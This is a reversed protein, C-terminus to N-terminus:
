LKLIPAAVLAAKTIDLNGMHATPLRIGKLFINPKDGLKYLCYYIIVFLAYRVKGKVNKLCAFQNIKLCAFKASYSM